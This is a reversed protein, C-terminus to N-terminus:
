ILLSACEDWEFATYLRSPSTEQRRQDETSNHNQILNLHSFLFWNSSSCIFCFWTNLFLALHDLGSFYQDCFHKITSGLDTLASFSLYFKSIDFNSKQQLILWVLSCLSSILFFILIKMVLKWIKHNIGFDLYFPEVNLKEKIGAKFVCIPRFTVSINHFLQLMVHFKYKNICSIMQSFFLLYGLFCVQSFGMASFCM